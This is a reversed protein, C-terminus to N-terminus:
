TCFELCNIGVLSRIKVSLYCFKWDFWFCQPSYFSHRLTLFLCLFSCWVCVCVTMTMFNSVCEFYIRILHFSNVFFTGELSTQTNSQLPIDLGEALLDFFESSTQPLPPTVVTSSVVSDSSMSKGNSNLPPPPYYGEVVLNVKHCFSDKEDM